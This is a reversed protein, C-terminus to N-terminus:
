RDAERATAPPRRWSLPGSERDSWIDDCRVEGWLEMGDARRAYVGDPCPGRHEEADVTEPVKDKGLARADLDVGLNEDIGIVRPFIEWASGRYIRKVEEKITGLRVPPDPGFLWVEVESPDGKHCTALVLGRSPDAYQVRAHCDASALVRLREGLPTVEVLAGDAATTLLHKGFPRQGGPVSVERGGIAPVLISEVRGAGPPRRLLGQHRLEGRLWATPRAPVMEVTAEILEGGQDLEAEWLNHGELSLTTEAGTGLDRVVMANHPTGGRLYLMRRGAGDFSVAHSPNGPLIENNRLDAGPLSTITRERTDILSLCMGERAALYRGGRDFALTDELPYGPGAGIVLYPRMAHDKGRAQELLVWHGDPPLMRVKIPDRTGIADGTSFGEAPLPRTGAPPCFPATRGTRWLHWRAYFPVPEEFDVSPDSPSGELASAEALLYRTAREDNQAALTSLLRDRDREDIAHQLRALIIPATEADGGGALYRLATTQQPHSPQRAIANFHSILGPVEWLAREGEDANGGHEALITAVAAEAPLATIPPESATLSFSLLADARESVALLQDGDVVVEEVDVDDPLRLATMQKERAPWTMLVKIPRLTATLVFRAGVAVVNTRLGDLVSPLAIAHVRNGTDGDRGVLEGQDVLWVVGHDVLVLGPAGGAHQWRTAGSRADVGTIAAGLWVLTNGAAIVGARNPGLWEDIWSYTPRTAVWDGRSPALPLLALRSMLPTTTVVADDFLISSSERAESYGREGPLREGTRDSALVFRDPCQLLIRGRNADALCCEEEPRLWLRRGTRADYGGLRGQHQVVLVSGALFMRPRGVCEEPLYGRLRAETSLPPLPQAAWRRQGTKVDVALPVDANQDILFVQGHGDHQLSAQNWLSAKRWGSVRWLPKARPLDIARPRPRLAVAVSSLSTARVAGADNDHV